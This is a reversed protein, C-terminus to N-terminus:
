KDTGGADAPPYNSAGSEFKRKGEFHKTYRAVLPRKDSIACDVANARLGAWCRKRIRKRPLHKVVIAATENKKSELFQSERL